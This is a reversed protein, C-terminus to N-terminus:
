SNYIVFTYKNFCFLQPKGFLARRKGSCLPESISKTESRIKALVHDVGSDELCRERFFPTPFNQNSTQNTKSVCNFKSLHMRKLLITMVKSLLLFQFNGSGGKKAQNNPLM